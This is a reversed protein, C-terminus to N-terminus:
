FRFTITNWPGKDHTPSGAQDDQQQVAEVAGFAVHGLQLTPQQQQRHEVRDHVGANVGVLVLLHPGGDLVQRAADAVPRSPLARGLGVSPGEARGLVSAVTLEGRLLHFAVRVDELRLSPPSRLSQLFWVFSQDRGWVHVWVKPDSESVHVSSTTQRHVSPLHLSAFILRM